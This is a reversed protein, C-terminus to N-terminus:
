HGQLVDFTIVDGACIGSVSCIAVMSLVMTRM